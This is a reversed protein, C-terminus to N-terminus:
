GPTKFVGLQSEDMLLIGYNIINRVTPCMKPCVGVNAALLSIFVEATVACGPLGYVFYEGIPLGPSM